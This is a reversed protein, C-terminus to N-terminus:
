ASSYALAWIAAVLGACSSFRRAKRSRRSLATSCCCAVTLPLRSFTSASRARSIRALRSM